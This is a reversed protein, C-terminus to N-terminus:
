DFMYIQREVGKKSKKWFDEGLKSRSYLALYYLPYKKETHEIKKAGEIGSNNYGLTEMQKGFLDLLFYGSKVNKQKAQGWDKRWDAKGLFRSIRMDGDKEYLAWNRQADMHTPILVFFDMFLKALSRITAFHLNDIRYPDVICFTLVLFEKSYQPIERLIKDVNENTDGQIVCTNLEAYDKAIRMKLAQAKEEDIECFIYKDYPVSMGLALFSSSPVIAGTSTVRSRGAGAFLDIFVRCNWKTKMSTTFLESYYKILEYKKLSHEKVDPTILGDDKLETKM